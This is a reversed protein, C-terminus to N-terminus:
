IKDIGLLKAMTEKSILDIQLVNMLEVVSKYDIYGQNNPDLMKFAAELPDFDACENHTLFDGIDKTKIKADDHNNIISIDHKEKFILDM